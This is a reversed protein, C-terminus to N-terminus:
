ISPSIGHLRQPLEVVFNMQIFVVLISIANMQKKNIITHVVWICKCTVLLLSFEKRSSVKNLEMFNYGIASKM